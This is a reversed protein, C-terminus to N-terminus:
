TMEDDDRAAGRCCGGGSPQELDSMLFESLDMPETGNPMKLGEFAMDQTFTPDLTGNMVLEPAASSKSGCCGRSEAIGEQSSIAAAPVAPGVKMHKKSCCQAWSGTHPSQMLAPCNRCTCGSMGCHQCIAAPFQYQFYDAMMKDFDLEPQTFTRIHADNPRHSPLTMAELSQTVPAFELSEYHPDSLPPPFSYPTTPATISEPSLAALPHSPDNYGAYPQFERPAPPAQGDWTLVDKGVYSDGLPAGIGMMGFRPVTSPTSAQTEHFNDRTTHVFQIGNSQRPTSPVSPTGASYAPTPPMTNNAIPSQAHSADLAERSDFFDVVPKQLACLADWHAPELLCCYRGQEDCRCDSSRKEGKKPKHPCASKAVVCQCRGTAGFRCTCSNAPRGPRKVTWFVKTRCVPIGCSTTRHGRICSM